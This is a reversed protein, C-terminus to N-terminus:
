QLIQATIVAFVDNFVFLVIQTFVVLATEKLSFAGLMHGSMEVTTVEPGSYESTTDSSTILLVVVGRTQSLVCEVM